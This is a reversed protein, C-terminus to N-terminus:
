ENGTGEFLRIMLNGYCGKRDESSNSEDSLLTDVITKTLEKENPLHRLSKYLKHFVKNKYNLAKRIHFQLEAWM